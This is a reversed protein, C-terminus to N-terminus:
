VDASVRVSRIPVRPIAKLSRRGAPFALMFPRRKSTTVSPSYISLFEWITTDSICPELIEPISKYFIGKQHPNEGYRMSLLKKLAIVNEDTLKQYDLKEKFYSSIISDYIATHSFAEIALKERQKINLNGNIKLSELISDYQNENTVVIVDKYNKAAARILTPGGIDINEIVEEWKIKDKKITEEFPYLNCIVIDIPKISFKNLVDIHNKNERKALIGAHIVPHLTKVRGDLIEPFNTLESVEKIEINAKKLFFATGGTSIIDIDLKKLGKTFKIIGDKKSVSILARKINM